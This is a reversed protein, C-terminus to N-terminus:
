NSQNKKKILRVLLKDINDLKEFIVKIKNNKEITKRKKGGSINIIEKM